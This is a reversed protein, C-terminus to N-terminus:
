GVKLRERLGKDRCGEKFTEGADQNGQVGDGVGKEV